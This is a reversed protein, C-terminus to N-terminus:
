LSQQKLIKNTKVKHRTDSSWVVRIVKGGVGIPCGAWGRFIIDLLMHSRLRVEAGLYPDGLRLDLSIPEGIM